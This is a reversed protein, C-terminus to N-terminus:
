GLLGRERARQALRTKIREFRKRLTAPSVAEGEHSLVIAAEDWTLERDLRLILLAHDEPDLEERLLELREDRARPTSARTVSAALRSAASSRLRSRRRRWPDRRFHASAHVALRFAWARLPCEGRFRPLGRWLHEAFTSFVDKGDDDGHLACLFGLVSPGLGEIAATAAAKADGSRLLTQVQAELVTM